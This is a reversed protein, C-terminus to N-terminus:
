YTQNPIYTINNRDFTDQPIQVVPRVSVYNKKKSHTKPFLFLSIVPKNVNADLGMNM